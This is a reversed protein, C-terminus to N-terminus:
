GVREARLRFAGCMAAAEDIPCPRSFLYGQVETCRLASLKELQATTEVGESLTVMGMRECLDVVAAVITDCHGVKGLGAIFSRDIKIKDFPFRWLYSLSSYGTGFDDLAISAGLDRLKHLTALVADTDDLIATETIELELRRAPFGTEALIAVVDEVISGGAFQVPSLNVAIKPQNPLALTEECARRLVWKGIPVILRTREALPIFDAPSVLGREPHRWRLLAEFGCVAGSAINVQAQYFVQFEDQELARRLDRELTRQAQMREDMAPEYFRYQGRGDTKSQYLATDATKMLRDPNDGDDPILAVGISVGIVVQKGDLEYPASIAAVLRGALLASDTPRSIDAQV